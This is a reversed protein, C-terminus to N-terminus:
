RSRPYAVAGNVGGVDRGAYRVHGRTPKELGALLNPITSKGRGSPGILSVFEGRSVRLDVQSIVEANRGNAQFHKGVGGLELLCADAALAAAGSLPNDDLNNMCLANHM